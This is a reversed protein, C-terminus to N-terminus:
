NAGQRFNSFGTLFSDNNELITTNSIQSTVTGYPFGTASDYPVDSFVTDGGIILTLPGAEYAVHTFSVYAKNANIQSTKNCSFLSLALLQLSINKLAQFLSSSKFKNLIM